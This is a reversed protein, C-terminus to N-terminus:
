GREMKGEQESVSVGNRAMESEHKDEAQEPEHRGQRKGYRRGRAERGSCVEMERTKAEGRTDGEDCM